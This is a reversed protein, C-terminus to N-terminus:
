QWGVQELWSVTEQVGEQRSYPPDGFADFIRDVSTPYDSIMNRFRSSTLPFSKGCKALVDGVWGIPAIVFRPMRRVSKGTLAKSFENVWLYIDDPRDGLNFVQRDVLEKPAKLIQDIQWVINGVYGYTRVVPKGGPHLYMGNHIIRWAESRYRLHWPGWINTPRVITWTCELQAKRTLQESIVKSQGYVTHPFYDESHNPLRAPGAVYQSSVIVVREISSTGRIANLVNETGVTNVGYGVEVTTNEDCDTRAAMHVVHTPRFEAFTAELQSHNMIDVKKWFREHELKLPKQVDINLLECGIRSYYDIFNTGIFGSAGTVLLKM